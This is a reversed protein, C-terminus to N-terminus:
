SSKDPVDDEIRSPTGAMERDWHARHAAIADRHEHSWDALRRLPEALSRGMATLTYEVQPPRTPHVTRAVLGDRELRRLTLTLMRQSIGEISRQLEGFRWPRRDLAALALISWRDGVRELLDKVGCANASFTTVGTHGDAM